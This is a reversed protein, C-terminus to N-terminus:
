MYRALNKKAFRISWMGKFRVSDDPTEFVPRTFLLSDGLLRQVHDSGMGSALYSELLLQEISDKRSEPTIWRVTCPISTEPLGPAQQSLVLAGLDLVKQHFDAETIRKIEQNKQAERM